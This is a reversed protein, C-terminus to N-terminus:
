SLSSMSSVRSLGTATLGTLPHHPDSDTTIAHKGFSAGGSRARRGVLETAYCNSRRFSACNQQRALWNQCGLVPEYATAAAGCAAM